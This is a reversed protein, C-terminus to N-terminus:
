EPTDLDSCTIETTSFSQDTQANYSDLDVPLTVESWHRGPTEPANRYPSGGTQPVTGVRHFKSDSFSMIDM